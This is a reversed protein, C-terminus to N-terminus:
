AFNDCYILGAPATEVAPAAAISQAAAAIRRRAQVFALLIALPMVEHTSDATDDLAVPLNPQRSLSCFWQGDECILRRLKWGPLELEILALAADTWADSEVLRAITRVKASKGLVPIRICARGIIKAFLHPTPQPAIRLEDDLRDFLVEHDAAFVM